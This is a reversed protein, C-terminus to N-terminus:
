RDTPRVVFEGNEYAKKMGSHSGSKNNMSSTAGLTAAHGDFYIVNVGGGGHRNAVQRSQSYSGDSVPTAMWPWNAATDWENGPTFRYSHGDFAFVCRSSARVRSLKVLRNRYQDVAQSASQYQSRQPYIWEVLAYSLERGNGDSYPSLNTDAPCTWVTTGSAHTYGDMGARDNIGHRKHTLARGIFASDSWANTPGNTANYMPYDYGIQGPFAFNGSADEIGKLPPLQGKFDVGYQMMGQGIQRLNSLCQVKIAADRARNLAPLLISILLAIIGIVVLLEVLTFGTWLTRRDAHEVIYRNM